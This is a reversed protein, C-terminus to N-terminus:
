YAHKQKRSITKFFTLFIIRLDFLPNWHTIYYLDFQVRKRLSSNGRWGNVQAWGTIGAKVAHRSQYNPITTRFKKVFIPREPRPGVLSMEGKLVNILQPLEDINWKRLFIGLRTRRPDNEATWVPGSQAEADVPMTRFKLMQFTEGNMSCREQTYFVPGQSSRKILYAVLLFFPSLIVLGIASLVFDMIRKILVNMGFHSNERLGVVTLGHLSTATLSLGAINPTDPILRIEVITQSLIDFVKRVEGYQTMPLAIFIHEAHCEEVLRPLDEISGAYPLDIKSHSKLNQEIDVYAVTQIGTWNAHKLARITRRALRGSGVIIAHSQNWGHSRLFGLIAWTMRRFTFVFSFTLVPFILMAIRSEYIAQRAFSMAMMVLALIGVAKGVAFLDDRLRILRHVQYLGTMRYVIAAFLLLFFLNSLYLSRDPIDHYIPMVGSQFRLWYAAMWGAATWALDWITFWGILPESSRRTM